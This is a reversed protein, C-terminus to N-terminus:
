IQQILTNHMRKACADTVICLMHFSFYSLSYKKDSEEWNSM